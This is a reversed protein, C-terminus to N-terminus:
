PFPLMARTEERVQETEDEGEACANKKEMILDQIACSDLLIRQLITTQGNEFRRSGAM